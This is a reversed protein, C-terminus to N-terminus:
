KHVFVGSNHFASVCTMKEIQSKQFKPPLTKTESDNQFIRFARGKTMEEKKDNRGKKRTERKKTEKKLTVRKSPPDRRAAM